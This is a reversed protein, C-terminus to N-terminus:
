ERGTGGELLNFLGTEIDMSTRLLFEKPYPNLKLHGKIEIILKNHLADDDDDETNVIVQLSKSDLRPEFDIVAQKINQEVNQWEIDSFNVGSLPPIGYNLTSSRVNEPLHQEMTEAQLNCTNLLYLIDRLVAQRYQDLNIAQDPRAEKKKRPEEDTLRDFLSPLLQNKFPSM